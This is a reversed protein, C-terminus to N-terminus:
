LQFEFHPLIYESCGFEQKQKWLGQNIGSSYDSRVSGMDFYRFGLSDYQQILSIFLFDLAYCAEGADSTAGYQSKVIGDNVFLTIGALMRGEKFICYQLINEPFQNALRQIEDLSHVPDVSHKSKLRPILVSNWFIQFDTTKVIEFGFTQYKRFRKLKSKHIRFNKYDISMTKESYSNIRGLNTWILHQINLIHADFFSPMLKVYLMKFGMKRYFDVVLSVIEELGDFTETERCLVGGFTLGQHSFIGMDSENAPFVACLQDNRYIVLSRDIFRDSHYSM